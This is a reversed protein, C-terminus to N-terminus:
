GGYAYEWEAWEEMNDRAALAIEEEETLVYSSPVWRDLDLKTDPLSAAKEPLLLPKDTKKLDIGKGKEKKKEWKSKYM